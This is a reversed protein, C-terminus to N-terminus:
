GTVTVTVSTSSVEGDIVPGEPEAPSEYYMVAEVCTSVRGLRFDLVLPWLCSANTAGSTHRALCSSSTEAARDALIGGLPM